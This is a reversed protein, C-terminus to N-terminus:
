RMWGFRTAWDQMVEDRWKSITAAGQWKQQQHRLEEYDSVGSLLKEDCIDTWWHSGVAIPAATITPSTISYQGVAPWDQGVVFVGEHVPFGPIDSTIVYPLTDPQKPAYRVVYRGNGVYHGRWTQRAVTLTFAVSDAPIDLAPGQLQWEMLAYCPVTDAQTLAGTIIYKPSQTMPEFQGGWHEQEPDAPDFHHGPAGQMMYLLSPTDGMKAIGNYYNVFDDGMVGCGKMCNEWFPAQYYSSDRADGIFGRYSSNNEIMWLDPHNEALYNYANCGWKKNPGGIWYVRIKDIIGPDDHLAQAVDELCGWVLVYLPRPDPRNACEVIWQSGETPQEDYGAITAEHKQGQRTISRLYDATALDHNDACAGQQQALSLGQQLRPRDQEYEDIMRLIEAKSGPGYSATSILGEIDFENSYMLLHLMSQNDDPDTGGIDTSVLIRYRETQQEPQSSTCATLCSVTALIALLQKKM